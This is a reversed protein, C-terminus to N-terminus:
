TRQRLRDPIQMRNCIFSCFVHLIILSRLFLILMCKADHGSTYRIYGCSHNMSHLFYSGGRRPRSARLMWCRTRTYVDVTKLDSKDNRGHLQFDSGTYIATAFYHRRRRPCQKKGSETKFRARSQHVNSTGAEVPGAKRGRRCIIIMINNYLYPPATRPRPSHSCSFSLTLSHANLQTRL